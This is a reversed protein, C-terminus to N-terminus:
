LTQTEGSTTTRNCSEEMKSSIFIDILLLRITWVLDELKVRDERFATELEHIKKLLPTDKIETNIVARIENSAGGFDIRCIDDKLATFGEHIHKKRLDNRYYKESEFNFEYADLSLPNKVGTNECVKQTLKQSVHLSKDSLRASLDNLTERIHKDEGLCGIDKVIKNYIAAKYEDTKVRLYGKYRNSKRVQPCDKIISLLFENGTKESVYFTPIDLASAFFIQRRESEIHIDDPIDKHCVTGDLIYKYAISTILAQLNVAYRMDENIKEFVSYFRGEFGSFGMKEFIRMKYLSYFSMEKSFQGMSHLEDILQEQNDIFGNLGPASDTSLLSVYYDILRYDPSYAGKLRFARELNRDIWEPGKPSIRTGLVKKISMKKWRRWLMRLHTFDLEHPLFGLVNEPHFDRFPIRYPSASYIGPFLPLFHETIKIALDGYYKEHYNRFLPDAQQLKKTILKSGLSVHIGNNTLSTSSTDPLIMLNNKIIGADKLKPITNLKSRSLTNHCTHMYRSKEEGDEWGFICPSMFLERYLSDPILKNLFKQNQPTLPSKYVTLHQGSDILGLKLNAYETIAQTMLFRKANEGAVSKGIDREDVSDSLYFSHTEPSTNDNLYCTMINECVNKLEPHLKECAVVEGLALRFLYSVPIRIKQEKDKNVFFIKYDSRLGSNKDSKKKLMDQKFLNLAYKSLHKEEIIVWSNEWVNDRHNEIFESLELARTSNIEGAKIHKTLNKYYKSNQISLAIDVCNKEGKVATQLETESGATIDDASFPIKEFFNKSIPIIKIM